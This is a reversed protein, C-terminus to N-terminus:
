STACLWLKKLPAAGEINCMRDVARVGRAGVGIFGIRVQEMPACRFGLMSHQDAPRTNNNSFNMEFGSNLLIRDAFKTIKAFYGWKQM